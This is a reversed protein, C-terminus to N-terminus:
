KNGCTITSVVAAESRPTRKMTVLKRSPELMRLREIARKLEGLEWLRKQDQPCRASLNWLTGCANSVVTLSPSKLQQLLIELCSHRRLIARDFAIVRGM